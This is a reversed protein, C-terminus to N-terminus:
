IPLLNPFLQLSKENSHNSPSIPNRVSTGPEQFLKLSSFLAAPPEENPADFSILARKSSTCNPTFGFNVPEMDVDYNGQRESDSDSLLLGYTGESSIQSLHKSPSPRPRRLPRLPPLAPTLSPRLLLEHKTLGHGMIYEM